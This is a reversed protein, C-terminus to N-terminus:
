IKFLVMVGMGIILLLLLILDVSHKNEGYTQKLDPGRGGIM